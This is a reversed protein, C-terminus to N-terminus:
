RRGTSPSTGENDEFFQAAAEFAVKVVLAGPDAHGLTRGANWASRGQVAAMSETAKVGDAAAVAASRAVESWSPFAGQAFAEAAPILADLLTKDGSAAGGRREIATIAAKLGDGVQRVSVSGDESQEPALARSLSRLGYAALTVFSSPAAESMVDAVWSVLASVDGRPRRDWETKIVGIARALTLGLDGDGAVQDLETFTTTQASVEDLIAEVLREAQASPGPEVAM